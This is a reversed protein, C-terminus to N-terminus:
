GQENEMKLSRVDKIRRILHLCVSYAPNQGSVFIRMKRPWKERGRRRRWSELLKGERGDEFYIKSTKLRVVKIRGKPLIPPVIEGQEAYLNGRKMECGFAALHDELHVADPPDIKKNGGATVRRQPELGDGSCFLPSIPM